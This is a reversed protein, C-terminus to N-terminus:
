EGPRGLEEKFPPELKRERTERRLGKRSDQLRLRGLMRREKTVAGCDSYTNFSLEEEYSKLAEENKGLRRM